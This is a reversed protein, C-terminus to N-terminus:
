TPLREASFEGCEDTDYDIVNNKEDAQAQIEAVIDNPTSIKYTIVSGDVYVYNEIEERGKLLNGLDVAEEEEENTSQEEQSIDLRARCFCNAMYTSTVNEWVESILCMALYANVNANSTTKIKEKRDLFKSSSLHFDLFNKHIEFM